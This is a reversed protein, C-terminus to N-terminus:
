IFFNKPMCSDSELQQMAEITQTVFKDSDAQRLTLDGMSRLEKYDTVNRPVFSVEYHDDKHKRVKFVADDNLKFIKTVGDPM